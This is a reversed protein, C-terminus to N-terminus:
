FNLKKANIFNISTLEGAPIPAGLKAKVDKLRNPSTLISSYSIHRVVNESPNISNSPVTPANIVNPVVASVTSTPVGDTATRAQM